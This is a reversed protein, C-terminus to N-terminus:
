SITWPRSISSKLGGGLDIGAGVLEHALAIRNGFEAQDSEGAIMARNRQLSRGIALPWAPRHRQEPAHPHAIEGLMPQRMYIDDDINLGHRVVKRDKVHDGLRSASPDEIGHPASFTRDRLEDIGDAQVLGAHRPVEFHQAVCAEDLDTAVRLTPEVAQSGFWQSFEVLPELRVAVLQGATEIREFAVELARGSGDGRVGVFWFSRGSHGVVDGGAEVAHEFAGGVSADDAEFPVEGVVDTVHPVGDGARLPQGVPPEREVGVDRDVEAFAALHDEGSRVSPSGIM